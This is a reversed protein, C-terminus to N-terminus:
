AIELLIEMVWRATNGVVDSCKDPSDYAGQAMMKALEQADKVYYFRGFLKRQIQCCSFTGYREVFKDALLSSVKAAEGIASTDAPIEEVYSMKDRPRGFFYDLAVIGGSLAGCTGLVELTVGGCLSTSVKVVIDDMEVIHHIAAVTSQSCSHSYKEFGFGVSYAKELLEQKSLERFPERIKVKTM